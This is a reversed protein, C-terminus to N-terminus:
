DLNKLEDQLQRLLERLSDIQSTYSNFYDVDEDKPVKHTLIADVLASQSRFRKKEILEIENKYYEIRRKIKRKERNFM